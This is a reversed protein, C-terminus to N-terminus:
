PACQPPALPEQRIPVFTGRSHQWLRQALEKRDSSQVAEQSFNVRAEIRRLTLVRMFHKVFNSGDSWCITRAPAMESEPTDYSVSAGFCPVRHRAAPELLSPLFPAVDEGDSTRGEPFITVPTGQALLVRISRIVRVADRPNDRDVFLTGAARSIWGFLPWGRIEDKAVFQSPYLSGLVVIDLYSVHNSAVVFPKGEPRGTARVEIGLIACLWRAWMWSAVSGVRAVPRVANLTVLRTLLPVSVAVLTMVVVATAKVFVRVSSM